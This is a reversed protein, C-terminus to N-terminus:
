HELRFMLVVFTVVELKLIFCESNLLRDVILLFSFNYTAFSLSLRVIIKLFENLQKQEHSELFSKRYSILLFNHLKDIDMIWTKTNLLLSLNLQYQYKQFPLFVQL